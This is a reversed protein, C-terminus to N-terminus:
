GASTVEHWSITMEVRTSRSGNNKATFTWTGPAPVAPVTIQDCYLSGAAGECYETDDSNSTDLVPFSTGSGRRATVKVRKAGDSSVHVKVVWEGNRKLPQSVTMSTSAKPKLLASSTKADAPGTLGVTLLTTLVTTLLVLSSRRM